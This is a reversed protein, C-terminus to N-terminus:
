FKIIPNTFLSVMSVMSVFDDLIGQEIDDKYKNIVDCCEPIWKNVLINRCTNCSKQVDKVFDDMTLPMTERLGPLDM